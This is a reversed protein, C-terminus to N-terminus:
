RTLLWFIAAFLVGALAAQLIIPPIRPGAHRPKGRTRSRAPKVTVVPAPYDNETKTVEDRSDILRARKWGSQDDINVKVETKPSGGVPTRMTRDADADLLQEPKLAPTSKSKVQLDGPPVLVGSAATPPELEDFAELLTGFNVQKGRRRSQLARIDELTKPNMREALARAVDSATVVQRADVLWKELAERM